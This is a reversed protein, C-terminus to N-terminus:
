LRTSKRDELACGLFLLDCLHANIGASIGVKREIGVVACGVGVFLAVELHRFKVPIVSRLLKGMFPRCSPGSRIAVQHFHNLRSVLSSETPSHKTSTVASSGCGVVRKHNGKECK